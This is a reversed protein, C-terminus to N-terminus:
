WDGLREAESGFKDSLLRRHAARRILRTGAEIPEGLSWLEIGQMM